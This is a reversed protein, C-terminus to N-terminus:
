DLFDQPPSPEAARTPADAATGGAVMLLCLPPFRPSPSPRDGRAASEIPLYKSKAYMCKLYLAVSYEIGYLHCFHSWGRAARVAPGGGSDEASYMASESPRPCTVGGRTPDLPMQGRYSTQPCFGGTASTFHPMAKRLKVNISGTHSGNM